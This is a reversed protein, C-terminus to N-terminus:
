VGSMPCVSCIKHCASATSYASSSLSMIALLQQADPALQIEACHTEDPVETHGVIEFIRKRIAASLPFFISFVAKSHVLEGLSEPRSQHQGHLVRLLSGWSDKEHTYQAYALGKRTRVAIVDGIKPKSPM